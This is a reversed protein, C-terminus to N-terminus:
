LEVELLEVGSDLLYVLVGFIPRNLIEQMAKIYNSVQKYHKSYFKKSSKYDIVVARDEFELLLDIQFLEGEWVFPQERRIKAGKLMQLFRKTNLLLDVRKEIEKIGDEHLFAGYRNRVAIIAEKKVELSFPELMELAYHIAVGFLIAKYDYGEQSSSNQPLDQVGYSSLTLTPVRYESEEYIKLKNPSITGKILPNMNLPEFLSQESKKIVIMGEVARTLAVYLLNLRDKQSAKKREDLIKRYRSDFRERGSIRYFFRKIHLNDGYYPILPEKDYSDRSSRDVVIVYDFELGKSGHITLVRAGKLTHSAVAINSDEFEELFTDLREFGSAFELLKLMNPDNDFVGYSQMLRHLVEVPAMFPSYWSLDPHSKHRSRFLLAVSDLRENKYLYEAMRVLSAVQPLTKLSSSTQLITPIEGKLCEEQLAKGEKNTSVLFAIQEVLVGRDILRKAQAVAELIAEKTEVVEVYGDKQSNPIQPYYDTIVGDFWDNVSEVIFRSSRYNYKLPEILIDYELAVREFLEEVGGRFRYLSQKTDGVYFFSRIHQGEGSFIEDILPKLLLFQLTSTDQFEDLLIHHFQSDLLFYLFDKKITEYLLRYTFYGLDDFDLKGNSKVQTIKINKYYSYLEGLNQLVIQERENLWSSMLKRLEQYEIEIQPDKLIYKKYNRHENLSEKNFLSKNYLQSISMPAFNNIATKSAGVRQVRIYLSKRLTEIEEEIRSISDNSIGLIEPLLPDQSYLAEFNEIIGDVRRKKMGVALEAFNGLLGKHELYELLAFQIDKLKTEKITFDPELGIELAGVRLVSVFFSDLTVIHGQTKLFYELVEKRKFLLIEESLGTQNSLEKRFSDFEKKNLYRLSDLIRQRMQAAAKNTFTAALITSPSEGLFLLALYRVSLAFTKGSGASASFALFPKFGM